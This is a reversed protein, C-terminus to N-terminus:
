MQVTFVKDLPNEKSSIGYGSDFCANVEMWAIWSMDTDGVLTWPNWIEKWAM